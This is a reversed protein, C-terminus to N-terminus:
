TIGKRIDTGAKMHRYSADLKGLDMALYGHATLEWALVTATAGLALYILWDKDFKLCRSLISDYEGHAGSEPGYVYAKDKINCFLDNEFEFDGHKSVVFLVKKGDWLRKFLVVDASSTIRFALANGYVASYNYFEHMRRYNFLCLYYYTMWDSGYGGAIPISNTCVLVKQSSGARLIKHLQDALRPYYLSLTNPSSRKMALEIEADGLRVLSCHNNQIYERTEEITLIRPYTARLRDLLKQSKTASKILIANSAEYGFDPCM